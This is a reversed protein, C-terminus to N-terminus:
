AFPYQLRRLMNEGWQGFYMIALARVKGRQDDNAKASDHALKAWYRRNTKVNGALAQACLFSRYARGNDPCNGNDIEEVFLDYAEQRADGKYGEVRAIFDLCIATQHAIRWLENTPATNELRLLAARQQELQILIGSTRRPDARHPNPTWRWSNMLQDCTIAVLAIPDGDQQTAALGQAKVFYTDAANCLEWQRWKWGLWHNLGCAIARQSLRIGEQHVAQWTAPPVSEQEPMTGGDEM